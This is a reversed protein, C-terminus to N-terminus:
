RRRAVDGAHEYARLYVEHADRIAAILRAIEDLNRRGRGTLRYFRRRPGAAPSMWRSQVWKDSELRRLMRYVAGPDPSLRLADLARRLDYGYTAGADLALLLWGVLLEKHPRLSRQASPARPAGVSPDARFPPDEGTVPTAAEDVGEDGRRALARAHADVFMGYTESIAAIVGAMERLAAQGESTLRYIHRRPGEVPESWDSVVWRDGEFKALWRYVSTAQVDIGRALLGQHLTYGYTEGSDLLLLTWAILLEKQYRLAHPPLSAAPSDVYGMGYTLWM